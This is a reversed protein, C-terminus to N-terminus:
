GINTEFVATPGGFKIAMEKQMDETLLNNDELWKLTNECSRYIRVNTYSIIGHAGSNGQLATEMKEHDWGLEMWALTNDLVEGEEVPRGNPYHFGSFQAMNGAACDAAVARLMGELDLNELNYADEERGDTYFSRIYGTMEPIREEPFGMVCEFRTYYGKLIQGAESPPYVDYFRNVTKGNKLKYELRLSVHSYADPYLQESRNADGDICDAHVSLIAEIDAPDTATFPQNGHRHLSYSDSFTVSEIESAEPMYTTIGLPDLLTLGVTLLFVGVIGAIGLFAKKQFVRTTRKLLMRCGFYGILAGAALLINKMYLNGFMEGLLHFSGGGFVTVLVLVVPEMCKFAVLDGACELKRRRYLVLAGILAAIGVLAIITLYGWGTGPTLGHVEYYMFNGFEDEIRTSDIILLDSLQTIKAVPSFPYFYEGNIQIGHLLPQYIDSMLWWVGLGAFNLIIYLGIQGLRNGTLMVCLVATGFFFLYQLGAGLLWWFVASWGAELQLLPLGLLAVFLNPLFSFALGSAVHTVFWGERTIPMAHLANCLRSNYLDGFLLQAVVAAYILNAWSVVLVADKMSNLRYYAQNESMAGMLFLLLVILYAAWAPAFRTLDKKFVTLNFSSTRSKM